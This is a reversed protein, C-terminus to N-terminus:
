SSKHVMLRGYNQWMLISIGLIITAVGLSNIMKNDESSFKMTVLSFIVILSLYFVLIQLKKNM